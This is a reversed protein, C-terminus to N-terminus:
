IAPRSWASARSTWGANLFQKVLIAAQNNPVLVFFTDPRLDRARQLFPAFDPNQLPVRLSEIIEAGGKVAVQKFTTESEIGPAWDNVMTVIRKAGHKVSWDAIVSSSQGLTFSTRVIYPSREVTMSSGSVMVVMPIKAEATLPAISLASPTIGGLLLAVKDNVILEQALRKGVDPVSADDKLVIQITRGAVTAGHEEMYLRAGAMTEKGNQNFAGTMSQIAGIRLAEQAAASGSAISAAAFAAM